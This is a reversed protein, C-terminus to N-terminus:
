DWIIAHEDNSSFWITMFVQKGGRECVVEHKRRETRQILQTLPEYTLEEFLAPDIKITIREYTITDPWVSPDSLPYPLEIFSYAEWYQQPYEQYRTFHDLGIREPYAGYHQKFLKAAKEVMRRATNEVAVM